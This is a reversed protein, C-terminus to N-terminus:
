YILVLRREECVFGVEHGGVLRIKKYYMAWVRRFKCNVIKRTVRNHTHISWSNLAFYRQLVVRARCKLNLALIM